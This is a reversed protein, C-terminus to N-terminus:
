RIPAFTARIGTGSDQNPAIVPLKRDTCRSRIVMSARVCWSRSTSEENDFREPRCFSGSKSWFPHSGAQRSTKRIGGMLSISVRRLPTSRRTDQTWSTRNRASAATKEPHFYRLCICLISGSLLCDRCATSGAMRQLDAIPAYATHQQQPEATHRGTAQPM